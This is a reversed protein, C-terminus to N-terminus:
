ICGGAIIEVHSLKRGNGSNNPKYYDDSSDYGHDLRSLRRFEALFSNYSAYITAAFKENRMLRELSEDSAVFIGLHERMFQRITSNDMM